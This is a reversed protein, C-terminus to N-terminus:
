RNWMRSRQESFVKEIEAKRSPAVEEEYTMPWITYWPLAIRTPKGPTGDVARQIELLEGRSLELPAEDPQYMTGMPYDKYPTRTQEIHAGLVFSIPKNKTFDIM